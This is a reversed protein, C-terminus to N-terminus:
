AKEKKRKRGKKRIFWNELDYCLDEIGTEDDSGYIYNNIYEESKSKKKFTKKIHAYLQGLGCFYQYDLIKSGLTKQRLDDSITERDIFIQFVEGFTLDLAQRIEGNYENNYIGNIVDINNNKWKLNRYYGTIETTLYIDKFTKNWLKINDDKKITEKFMPNLKCLKKNKKKLLQNIFNHFNNSVFTKIKIIKNDKRDKSKSDINKLTKTNKTTKKNNDDFISEEIFLNYKAIKKSNYKFSEKDFEFSNELFSDNSHPNFIIHPDSITEDNQSSLLFLPRFQGCYYEYEGKFEDQIKIGFPEYMM